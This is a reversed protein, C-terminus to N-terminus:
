LAGPKGIDQAAKKLSAQVIKANKPGAAAVAQDVMGPIMRKVINQPMSEQAEEEKGVTVGAAPVGPATSALQNKAIEAASAGMSAVDAVTNVAANATKGAGTIANGAWKGAKVIGRGAAQLVPLAARGAAVAGRGLAGVGAAIAPLFEEIVEPDNHYEKFSPLKRSM